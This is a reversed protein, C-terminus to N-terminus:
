FFLANVGMNLNFANGTVSADDNMVGNHYIHYETSHVFTFM